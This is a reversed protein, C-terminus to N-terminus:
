WVGLEKLRDLMPDYGDAVKEFRVDPLDYVVQFTGLGLDHTLERPCFTSLLLRNVQCDGGVERCALPHRIFWRTEKLVVAHTDDHLAKQIKALKDEAQIRYHRDDYDEGAYSM